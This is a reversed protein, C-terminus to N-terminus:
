ETLNQSIITWCVLIKIYPPQYPKGCNNRHLRTKRIRLCCGSNQERHLAGNICELTRLPNIEPFVCVDFLGCVRERPLSTLQCTLPLHAPTTGLHSPILYDKAPKARNWHCRYM